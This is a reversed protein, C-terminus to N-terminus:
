IIRSRCKHIRTTFIITLTIFLYHIHRYRNIIFRFSFYLICCLFFLRLQTNISCKNIFFSSFAVSGIFLIILGDGWNIRINKRSIIHLLVVTLCTWISCYYFWFYKGTVVGKPLEPMIIFVTSLILLFPLSFIIQSRTIGIHKIIGM